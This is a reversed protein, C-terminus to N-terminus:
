IGASLVILPVESDKSFNILNTTGNRFLIHSDAVISDFCKLTYGGSAFMTFDKEWWETLFQAKLAHPMSLDQEIPYYHHFLETTKNRIHAPTHKWSIIAKFSSDGVKAENFQYKTM